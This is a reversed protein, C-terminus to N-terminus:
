FAQQHCEEGNDSNLFKPIGHKATYKQFHELAESKARLIEVVEFKSYEDVIM